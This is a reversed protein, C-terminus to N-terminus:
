LPGCAQRARAHRDFRGLPPPRDRPAGLRSAIPTEAGHCKAAIGAREQM